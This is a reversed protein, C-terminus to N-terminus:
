VSIRRKEIRKRTYTRLIKLYHMLFAKSINKMNIVTWKNQTSFHENWWLGNICCQNHKSTRKQIITLSSSKVKSSTITRHFVYSRAVEVDMERNQHDPKSGWNEFLKAWTFLCLLSMKTSMDPLTRRRLCIKLFYSLQMLCYLLPQVLKQLQPLKVFIKM